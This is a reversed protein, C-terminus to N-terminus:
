SSIRATESEPIHPEKYITTVSDMRLVQRAWWPGRLKLLRLEWGCKKVAWGERMFGVPSIPDGSRQDASTSTKTHLCQGASCTAVRRRTALRHPPIPGECQGTKERRRDRRRIETDLRTEFGTHRSSNCRSPYNHYASTRPHMMNWNRSTGTAQPGYAPPDQGVCCGNEWPNTIIINKARSATTQKPQIISTTCSAQYIVHRSSHTHLHCWRLTPKGTVPKSRVRWTTISM